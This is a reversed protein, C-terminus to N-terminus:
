TVKVQKKEFIKVLILGAIFGGIHAAYAVGGQEGGLMGLGNVIQMVIWFGLVVVAPLLFVNFVAFVKVKRQPYLFMYAGMVASIAGSAGLSPVLSSQQMFYTSFVHALSALLGTLLYFVLYRTHGLRNEINDGFIFLYLMNGGLHAWGGHMFISTILTLYVPIKTEGLGPQYYNIGTNPDIIESAPTVIDHGTLIEAPVASYAFTFDINQGAGQLLVFVLINIVILAYTIYPQIRRDSNDDGIPLM